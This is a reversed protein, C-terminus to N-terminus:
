QSPTRLEGSAASASWHDMPLKRALLQVVVVGVVVCSPCLDAPPASGNQAVCRCGVIYCCKIILVLNLAFTLRAVPLPRLRRVLKLPSTRRRRAACLLASHNTKNATSLYFESRRAVSIPREARVPLPFSNHNSNPRMPAVSTPRLLAALRRWHRAVLASLRTPRTCRRASAELPSDNRTPWSTQQARNM